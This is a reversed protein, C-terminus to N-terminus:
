TITWWTPWTTLPSNTPRSSSSDGLIDSDFSVKERIRDNFTITRGTPVRFRVVPIDADGKARAEDESVDRCRGNYVPM